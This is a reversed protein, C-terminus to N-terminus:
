NSLFTKEIFQTRCNWNKNKEIFAETRDIIKAPNGAIVVGSPVSHTVVSGAGVIVNDGITVGPLIIAGAGVYVRNGITVKGFKVIGLHISTSADHVIIKVDNAITTNDGIQICWAGPSDMRVNRGIYVNKGMKLGKRVLYKLYFKDFIGLVGM